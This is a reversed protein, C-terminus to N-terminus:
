VEEQLAVDGASEHRLFERREDQPLRLARQLLDDVKKWREPHMPWFWTIQRQARASARPLAM